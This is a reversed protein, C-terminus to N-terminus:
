SRTKMVQDRKTFFFILNYLTWKYSSAHIVVQFQLVLFVKSRIVSLSLCVIGSIPQKFVCCIQFNVLFFNWTPSLGLNVILGFGISKYNLIFQTKHLTIDFSLLRFPSPILQTLSDRYLGPCPRLTRPPQPKWSKFVIPM